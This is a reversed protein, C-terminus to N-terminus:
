LREGRFLAYVLYSSCPSRSRRARVLRGASMLRAGAGLALVFASRSAPPPSRRARRPRVDALRWSTSSRRAARSSPTRPERTYLSAARAAHAPRPRRAHRRRTVPRTSIPSAARSDSRAARRAPALRSRNLPVAGPLELRPSARRRRQAALACALQARARVDARRRALRLGTSESRRAPEIWHRRRAAARERPPLRASGATRGHM